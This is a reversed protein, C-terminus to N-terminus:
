INRYWQWFNPSGAIVRFEKITYTMSTATSYLPATVAINTIADVRTGTPYSQVNTSTTVVTIPLNRITLINSQCLVRARYGLPLDYLNESQYTGTNSNVPPMLRTLIYPIEVGDPNTMYTTDLTLVIGKLSVISVADNAYQVTAADTPITSYQLNKIRHQTADIDGAVNASLMLDKFIVIPTAGLTPTLQAHSGLSVVTFSTTVTTTATVITYTNNYTTDVVGDITVTTGTSIIPVISNLTVNFISGTTLGSSKIIQIGYNGSNTTLGNGKIIVNTVTLEEMVGVRTISTQTVSTGLTSSTLVSLGAIKYGLGGMTDWNINSRWSTASNNYLITKDTTGHLTIGGGDVLADTYWTSSTALEINKDQIQLILTSIQTQTGSVTLNGSVIANGHFYSTGEVHLNYSPNTGNLNIGVRDKYATLVRTYADGAPPDSRKTILNIPSDAITNKIEAKRASISGTMAISLDTYTGVQLGKDSNLWLSGAGDIRQDSGSNQKVLYLEPSIGAVYLANTATGAFRIDPITLNLTLCTKIDFMGQNYQYVSSTPAIIFSSTSLMGLLTGDSYLSTVHRENAADDIFVEHVWGSKGRLSSYIPGALVTNVGDKTFYLQSNKTDIWLDGQKLTIPKTDSLTAASIESFVGELSYVKLRGDAKNYWLQGVLPARPQTTSAFNQLMQVLNTNLATGYADTNKGILTLSTTKTDVKGDVLSLLVTGDANKITYAM